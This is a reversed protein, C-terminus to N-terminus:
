VKKGFFLVLLFVAAILFCFSQSFYNYNKKDLKTENYCIFKLKNLKMTITNNKRIFGKRMSVLVYRLMIIANM